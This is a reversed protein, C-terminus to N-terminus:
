GPQLGIAMQGKEMLEEFIGGAEPPALVLGRLMAARQVLVHGFTCAPLEGGPAAVLSNGRSGRCRAM